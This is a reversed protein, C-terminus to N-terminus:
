KKTLHFNGISLDDLGSAYFTQLADRPSCVIPEGKLSFSTNMVIPIGTRQEVERILDYFPM